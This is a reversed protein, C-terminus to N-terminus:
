PRKVSAVNVPKGKEFARINEATTDLIRTLAETSNFANHPTVIVNPKSLLMHNALVTRLGRGEKFQATLLQREEKIGGEEELVDLGAGAVHGSLIAEVLAENDILGGRATNILIVGRKMRSIADKNIIHTNQPTLNCHLSIIDSVRLLEDFGVSKCTLLEVLNADAYPDYVRVHMGLAKATKALHSGIKGFGVLGLTKDELDFTRLGDLSFNGQRTRESSQIIKKSLALMLALAHEAVTHSGYAPVNCVKVGRRACAALDIHDFGTSRTAIMRLKKWRGLEARGIRSYIFCCVVEAHDAEHATLASVPRDVFKLRHGKLQRALYAKEWPECEYFVIKSM